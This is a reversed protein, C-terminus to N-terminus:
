LEILKNQIDKKWKDNDFWERPNVEGTVSLKRVINENKIKYRQKITMILDFCTQKDDESMKEPVGISISNYKTCIGHLYGFDSLRAGNVSDSMHEDPIIQIAIGNVIHYHPTATNGVTQVVIYTIDNKDRKSGYYKPSAIRKEIKM